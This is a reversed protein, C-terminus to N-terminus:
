DDMLEIRSKIKTLSAIRGDFWYFDNNLRKLREEDSESKVEKNNLEISEEEISKIRYSYENIERDIFDLLWKKDIEVRPM